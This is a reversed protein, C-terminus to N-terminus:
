KKFDSKFYLGSKADNENSSKKKMMFFVDGNYEYREIYEWGKESMYNLIDIISNFELEKGDKDMLTIPSKQSQWVVKASTKANHPANPTVACFFDRKAQEQANATMVVLLALMLLLKKMKM